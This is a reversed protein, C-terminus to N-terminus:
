RTTILHAQLTASLTSNDEAETMRAPADNIGTRYCHPNGTRGAEAAKVINYLERATVYHLQYRAGDNYTKELYTLTDDLSSGFLMASHREEAGHTHLKVFVWEPRGAVHIHQRIWLDARQPTPPNDPTLEGNEIRPFLGRSRSKWNLTLPGQILLLGDADRDVAAPTGTEHSKPCHPDDVAYYVSNITAPQTPSPASPFTLDAYCGTERLVTIEDNVGCYSGDPLSNDLAWNGHIFAYEVLNTAPNRRLLGHRDHLMETYDLITRRLAASTDNDHHLHVEVDAIGLRRLGALENLHEPAYEEIPYFFTYQLPHGDADRHRLALKPLNTVWTAVRECQVAIPAHNWAPEFHDAICLVIHTTGTPKPRTRTFERLYAGLWYHLNKRRIAITVVVSAAAVAAAATGLLLLSWNVV